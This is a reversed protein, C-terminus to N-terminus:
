HTSNARTVLVQLPTGQYSEISRRFAQLKNLVIILTVLTQYVVLGKGNNFQLGQSLNARTLTPAIISDAVLSVCDLAPPHHPLHQQHNTSSDVHSQAAAAAVVGNTARPLPQAHILRAIFNINEMWQTSLRPEYTLSSGNLFRITTFLLLLLLLLLLLMMMMMMM